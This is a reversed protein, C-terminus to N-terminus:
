IFILKGSWKSSQLGLLYYNLDDAGYKQALFNFALIIVKSTGKFCKKGKVRHRGCKMGEVCSFVHFM